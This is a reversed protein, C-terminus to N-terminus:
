WPPDLENDSNGIHDTRKMNKTTIETILQRLEDYGVGMIIFSNLLFCGVDVLEKKLSEVEDQTLLRRADKKYSRRAPLNLLAEFVEEQLHGLNSILYLEIAYSKPSLTTGYSGVENFASNSSPLVMANVAELSKLKSFQADYWTKLVDQSNM